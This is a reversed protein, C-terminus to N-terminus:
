LKQKKMEEKICKGLEPEKKIGKVLCTEKAAVRAEKTKSNSASAAVNLFVLSSFLVFASTLYNMNKM